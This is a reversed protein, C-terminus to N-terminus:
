SLKVGQFPILLSSDLAVLLTGRRYLADVMKVKTEPSCRAVVVPLEPLADIEADTMADLQQGTM